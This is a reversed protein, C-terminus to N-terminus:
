YESTILPTGLTLRWEGNTTNQHLAAQLAIDHSGSRVTRHLLKTGYAVSYTGGDRYSELPKARFSGAIAALAADPEGSEALRGQLAANWAGAFGLEALSRSASRQWELLADAALPSGAPSELKVILFSSDGDASGALLLSVRGAGAPADEMGLAAEGEARFAAGDPAAAAARLGLRQAAAEGAPRAAAAPGLDVSCYRLTVAPAGAFAERAGALLAATDAAADARGQAPNGPAAAGVAAQASVRAATWADPQLWGSLLLGAALLGAALLPATRRRQAAAGEAAEGRGSRETHMGEYLSKHAEAENERAIRETSGSAAGNQGNRMMRVGKEASGGAAGVQGNRMMRM